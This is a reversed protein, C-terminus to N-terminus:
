HADNSEMHVLHTLVVKSTVSSPEGAWIAAGNGLKAMSSEQGRFVVVYAQPGMSAHSLAAGSSVTEFMRRIWSGRTVQNPFHAFGDVDSEEDIIHDQSDETYNRYIERVLVGKVPAGTTDIVTVSWDPAALTAYPISAAILAIFLVIAVKIPTKV